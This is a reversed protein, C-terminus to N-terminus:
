NALEFYIKKLEEIARFVRVKVASESLNMIKAIEKYKLGEYRSLILPERKEFSLRKMAMKLLKIQEKKEMVEVLDDSEEKNEFQVMDSLLNKNERKKFSDVLVNHGISFMWSTFKSKAKFQKSGKLIRYFVTQVMDESRERNGSVRFFYSFLQKKYREYLIALKEIDGSQVLQILELDSIAEM